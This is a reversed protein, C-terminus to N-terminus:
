GLRPPSTSAKAGSLRSALRLSSPGKRPKGKIATREQGTDGGRPGHIEYEGSRPAIQGPKLKESM